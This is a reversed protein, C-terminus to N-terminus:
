RRLDPSLAVSEPMQANKRQADASSSLHSNDWHSSTHRKEADQFGSDVFCSNLFLLKMTLSLHSVPRYRKWGAKREWYCLDCSEQLTDNVTTIVTSQRRKLLILGWDLTVSAMLQSGQECGATPHSCTCCSAQLVEQLDSQLKMGPSRDARHCESFVSITNWHVCLLLLPQLYMPMCTYFCAQQGAAAKGLSYSEQYPSTWLTGQYWWSSSGLGQLDWLKLCFPVM